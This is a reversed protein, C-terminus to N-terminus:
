QFKNNAVWKCFSLICRHLIINIVRIILIKILCTMFIIHGRDNKSVSSKLFEVNANTYLSFSKYPITRRRKKSVIFQLRVAVWDPIYINNVIAYKHSIVSRWRREDGRVDHVYSYGKWWGKFQATTINATTINASDLWSLSNNLITNLYRECVFSM